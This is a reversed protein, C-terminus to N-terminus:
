EDIKIKNDVLGKKKMSNILAKSVPHFFYVTLCILLFVFFDIIFMIWVNLNGKFNFFIFCFLCYLLSLVVVLGDVKTLLFATTLKNTKHYIYIVYLSGVSLAISWGMVVGYGTFFYGFGFCLAVNLVAIIINSVVNAKLNASGMNAFYAPSIVINCWYAFALLITIIVFDNNVYGIWIKSIPIVSAVIFFLWLISLLFSISFVKKYLVKTADPSEENSSTFVPIFVQNASVLFGRLQTVFRNSMEYYTVMGLNGFSGLISKTFPDFCLQCISIIQEQIGFTFISKFIEKDWKITYLVLKKFIIKLSIVSGILLFIAQILQAYAIGILGYKPVLLYSFLILLVFSFIYLLSRIYNKQLGDICSLFIGSLANLLLCLLSYPILQIAANYYDPKIVAHLWLPAILYVIIIIVFFVGGLFLFSTHILKNINDLQGTVKFKAAYRVVSAGIGLNAVNATSSISLVIAWVGMLDAGMKQLLFKYLFYYSIGTIFIQLLSFFINISITKKNAM